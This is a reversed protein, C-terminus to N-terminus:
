GEPVGTALLFSVSLMIALLFSVSLVIALLFLVSLVIDLLFSVSLVIALLFPVINVVQMRINVQEKSKTLLHYVPVQCLKYVLLVELIKQLHWWM